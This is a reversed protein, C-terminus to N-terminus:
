GLTVGGFIGETGSGLGLGAGAGAGDPPPPELEPEPDPDDPPDVPEPPVVLGFGVFGEPPPESDCVGDPVPPPLREPPRVLDPPPRRPPRVRRGRRGATTAGPPSPTTRAGPPAGVGLAGPNVSAGGSMGVAPTGFRKM